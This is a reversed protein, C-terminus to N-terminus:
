KRGVSVPAVTANSSYGLSAVAENTAVGKQFSNFKDVIKKHIKTVLFISIKKKRLPPAVCSSGLYPVRWPCMNDADADKSKKEPFVIM